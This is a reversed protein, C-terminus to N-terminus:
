GKLLGDIMEKAIDEPATANISRTFHVTGNIPYLRYSTGHSQSQAPGAFRYTLADGTTVSFEAFLESIGGGLSFRVQLQDNATVMFVVVEKHYERNLDACLSKVKERLTQWLAPGQEEILRRHDLQLADRRESAAVRQRLEKAKESAWDDTM